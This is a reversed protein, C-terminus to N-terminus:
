NIQKIEKDASTTTITDSPALVSRVYQARETDTDFNTGLFDPFFFLKLVVFMLVLKVAILAWVAKGLGGRGKVGDVYLMAALRIVSDKKAM